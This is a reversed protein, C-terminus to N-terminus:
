PKLLAIVGMVAGTIGATAAVGIGAWVIAFRTELVILKDSMARLDDGNKESSEISAAGRELRLKIEMLEKDQRDIKGSMDRVLALIEATVGDPPRPTRTDDPM